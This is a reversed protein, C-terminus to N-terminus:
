QSTRVNPIFVTKVDPMVLSHTNEDRSAVLGYGLSLDTLIVDHPSLIEGKRFITVSGSMLEVLKAGVSFDYTKLLTRVDVYASLAGLAVYTLELAASGLCRIMARKEFEFVVGYMESQYTYLSIAPSSGNDNIKMMPRNDEFPEGDRLGYMKNRWFDYVIGYELDAFSAHDFHDYPIIAASVVSFPISRKYNSSGDLPDLVIIVDDRTGQKDLPIEGREESLVLGPVGVTNLTHVFEDEALLDIQLSKHGGVNKEKYEFISPDGSAHKEKLFQGTRYVAKKIKEFTVFDVQGM